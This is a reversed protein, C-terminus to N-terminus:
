KRKVGKALEQVDSDLPFKAALWKIHVPVVGSYRPEQMDNQGYFWAMVYDKAYDSRWPNLKYAGYCLGVVRHPPTIPNHSFSFSLDHLYCAAGQLLFCASCFILALRTM